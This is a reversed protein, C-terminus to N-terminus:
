PKAKRAQEPPAEGHRLADLCKEWDSSVLAYYLAALVANGHAIDEPPRGRQPANGPQLCAAKECAEIAKEIDTQYPTRAARVAKAIRELHDRATSPGNRPIKSHPWAM